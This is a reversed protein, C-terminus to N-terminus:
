SSRSASLSISSCIRLMGEAPSRSGGASGCLLWFRTDLISSLTMTSSCLRSPVVGMSSSFVFLPGLGSGWSHYRDLSSSPDNDPSSSPSERTSNPGPLTLSPSPPSMPCDREEREDLTLESFSIVTLVMVNLGAPFGLITSMGTLPDGTRLFGDIVENELIGTPVDKLSRHAGAAAAAGEQGGAAGAGRLSDDDDEVEEEALTVPAALFVEVSDAVVVSSGDFRVLGGVLRERTGENDRRLVALNLKLVDEKAVEEEEEEEEKEDEEEGGALNANMLESWKGWLSLLSLSTECGEDSDTSSVRLRELLLLLLWLLVLLALLALLLLLLLELDLLLM